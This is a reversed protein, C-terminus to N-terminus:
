GFVESLDPVEGPVMLVIPKKMSVFRNIEYAVGVSDQWGELTLAIIGAAADMLPEDQDLWMAHDLADLGGYVALPHSHCIPSYVRYGERILSAAAKAAEIFAAELGDVYKSYPSALYLLPKSM